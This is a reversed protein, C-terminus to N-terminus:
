TDLSEPGFSMPLLEELTKEVYDTPTKAMIVLFKEPEAFERMFQRCIGCPTCYGNSTFKSGGVIAIALIKREGSAIAHSIATREACIAAGYSVNEVNAGTYIKGSSCLVAAGVNFESYPAYSNKQADLACQILKARDVEIKSESAATTTLLFLTLMVTLFNKM